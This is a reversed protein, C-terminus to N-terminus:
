TPGVELLADECVMSCVATSRITVSFPTCLCLLLVVSPAPPSPLGYQGLPLGSSHLFALLSTFSCSIIFPLSPMSTKCLASPLTLGSHPLSFPAAQISLSLPSSFHPLSRASCCLTFYQLCFLKGCPSSLAKSLSALLM